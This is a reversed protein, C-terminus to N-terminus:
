TVASLESSPVILVSAVATLVVVVVAAVMAATPVDHIFFAPAATLASLIRLALLPRIAARRGRWAGVLFYLSAVGLVAGIAAILYPPHSGDTMGVAAIDGVSLLGFIVLGTRTRATMVTGETTTM